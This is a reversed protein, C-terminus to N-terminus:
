PYFLCLKLGLSRLLLAIQIFDALSFLLIVTGRGIMIANLHPPRLLSLLEFVYWLLSVKCISALVIAILTWSGSGIVDSMMKSCDLWFLFPFWVLRDLGLVVDCCFNTCVGGAWEFIISEGPIKEHFTLAVWNKVMFGLLSVFSRLFILRRARSSVRSHAMPTSFRWCLFLFFRFDVIELAKRFSRWCTNIVSM